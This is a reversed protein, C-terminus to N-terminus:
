RVEKTMCHGRASGAGLLVGSVTRPGGVNGHCPAPPPDLGSARIGVRFPHTGGRGVGGGDGGRPRAGPRCRGCRGRVRRGGRAAAAATPAHQPRQGDQHQQAHRPDHQVARESAQGAGLETGRQAAESRPRQQGRHGQRRQRQQEHRPVVGQGQPVDALPQGVAAVAEGGEGRGRQAVAEPGGGDHTRGDAGTQVRAPAHGAPVDGADHGEVEHGEDQAGGHQGAPTREGGRVGDGGRQADRDGGHEGHGPHEDSEDHRVQGEGGRSRALDAEAAEDQVARRQRQRAPLHHERRHLPQRHRRDQVDQQGRRAPRREQRERHGEGGGGDRSQQGASGAPDPDELGRQEQQGPRDPGRRLDRGREDDVADAVEQQRHQGRGDQERQVLRAAAPPQLHQARAPAHAGDTGRQGRGGQGQGDGSRAHRGDDGALQGARHRRTQGARRRAQHAQRGDQQGDAQLAPQAPRPGYREHQRRRDGRRRQGVAVLQAGGPGRRQQDEEDPGTGGEM